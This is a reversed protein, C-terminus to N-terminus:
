AARHARSRPREHADIYEAVARAADKFEPHVPAEDLNTPPALAYMPVEYLAGREDFMSQLTSRRNAPRLGAAKVTEDCLQEQARPTPPRPHTLAPPAAPRARPAPRPARAPRVSDAEAAFRLAQWMEARGEVRTEWFEARLRELHASTLAPEIKWPRIPRVHGDWQTAEPQEDREVDKSGFCGM